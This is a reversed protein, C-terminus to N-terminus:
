KNYKIINQAIRGSDRSKSTIKSSIRLSVFATFAIFLSNEEIVKTLIYLVVIRPRFMYPLAVNLVDWFHHNKCM